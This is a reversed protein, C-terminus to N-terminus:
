VTDGKLPISYTNHYGVFSSVHLGVVSVANVLAQARRTTFSTLSFAYRKAIGALLTVTKCRLLTPFLTQLCAYTSLTSFSWHSRQGATASTIKQSTLSIVLPTLIQFRFCHCCVPTLTGAAAFCYSLKKRNVVNLASVLRTCPLVLTGGHVSLQFCLPIGGIIDLDEAPVTIYCLAHKSMTRMLILVRLTKLPSFTDTMWNKRRKLRAPM